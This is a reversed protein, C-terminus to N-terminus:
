AEQKRQIVNEVQELTYRGFKGVPEMDEFDEVQLGADLAAKLAEGKLTSLSRLGIDAGTSQPKRSDRGITRAEMGEVVRVKNKLGGKKAELQAKTAVFREGPWLIRGRQFEVKKPDKSVNTGPLHHRGEVVECVVGSSEQGPTAGVVPKRRNASVAAAHAEKYQQLTKSM